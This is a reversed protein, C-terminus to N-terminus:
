LRLGQVATSALAIGHEHFLPILPAEAVVISEARRYLAQRKAPDISRRAETLLADLAEDTWGLRYVTQTQSHLLFHLFNDPDPVDAFWWGRYVPVRGDRVNRWFDEPRQEQHSLTVLGAEILPRFLVADEARTDRGPPFPLELHLTSVGAEGLLRRAEELDPRPVLPMGAGGLLEPPTLSRAARADPHFREVVGMIDIGARIALRVRRDRFPHSKANFALFWCSPTNGAVVQFQTPDVDAMQEAALSSVVEVQGERLLRVGEERTPVPVFEIRDIYPCDTQHYSPNRELIIGEVSVQVARYPGCGVLNRGTWRAIGALPLTLIHLFFARPEVLRIEVTLDDLVRVGSLERTEGALLERAGEVDQLAWAESSKVGPDLLREFHAKVRGANLPVGDSFVLGRRLTFRFRRAARDAAWREALEPVLVGDESRILTPFLLSTAEVLQSDLTFLPDLGRTMEVDAFQHLAARLVGGRRPVPLRFRYVEAELGEAERRLQDVTRNLADGTRIVQHADERVAAVEESIATDARTLVRHASRIEDIAATLRLVSGSLERGVQVQ